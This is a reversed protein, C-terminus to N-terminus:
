SKDITHVEIIKENYYLNPHESTIREYTCNLFGKKKIENVLVYIKNKSFLMNEIKRRPCNFSTPLFKRYLPVFTTIISQEEVFNILELFGTDTGILLKCGDVFTVM